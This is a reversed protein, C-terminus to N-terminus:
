GIALSGISASGGEIGLAGGVFSAIVQDVTSIAVLVEPSQSSDRTGSLRVWHDVSACDKRSHGQLHLLYVTPNSNPVWTRSSITIPAVMFMGRLHRKSLSVESIMGEIGNRSKRQPPSPIDKSRTYPTGPGDTRTAPISRGIRRTPLTHRLIHTATLESRLFCHAVVYGPNDTCNNRIALHLPVISMCMAM